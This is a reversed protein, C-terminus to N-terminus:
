IFSYNFVYYSFVKRLHKLSCFTISHGSFLNWNKNNYLCISWRQESSVPKQWVSSVQAGISVCSNCNINKTWYKLSKWLNEDFLLVSNFFIVFWVFHPHILFDFRWIMLSSSIILWGSARLLLLLLEFTELIKNIKMVKNEITTM